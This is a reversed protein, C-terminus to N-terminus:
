ESERKSVYFFDAVSNCIGSFREALGPVRAATDETLTGLAPGPGSYSIYGTLIVNQGASTPQM